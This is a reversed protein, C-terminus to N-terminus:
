PRAAGGCACVARIGCDRVRAGRVPPGCWAHFHERVRPEYCQKAGQLESLTLGTMIPHGFAYKSVIQAALMAFYAECMEATRDVCYDAQATASLAWSEARPELNEKIAKSIGADHPGIIQADSSSVQPYAPNDMACRSQM